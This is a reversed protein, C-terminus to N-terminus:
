LESPNYEILAKVPVWSKVFSGEDKRFEVLVEKENFQCVFGNKTIGGFPFSVETAYNKIRNKLVKKGNLEMVNNVLIFNKKESEFM